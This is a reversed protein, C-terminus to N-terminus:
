REHTQCYDNISLRYIEGLRGADQKKIVHVGDLAVIQELYHYSTEFIWVPRGVSMLSYLLSTKCGAILSIRSLLEGDIQNCINIHEMEESTFGYESRLDSVLSQPRMKITLLFGERILAKLFYVYECVDLYREYMCLVHRNNPNPTLTTNFQECGIGVLISDAPYYPNVRQYAKGWFGDWVALKNYWEFSSCSRVAYGFDNKSYLGHQFGVTEVGSRNLAFLLPFLYLPDDIGYFRRGIKRARFLRLYLDVQRRAQSVVARATAMILNNQHYDILPDYRVTTVLFYDRRFFFKFVTRFGGGIATVGSRIKTMEHRLAKLRMEDESYQFFMEGFDRCIWRNHFGILLREFSWALRLLVRRFLSNRRRIHYFTSFRTGGSFSPQLQQGELYDIADHYLVSPVVLKHFLFYQIAPFWDIGEAPNFFDKGHLESFTEFMGVAMGFDSFHPQFHMQHGAHTILLEGSEGEHVDARRHNFIFM